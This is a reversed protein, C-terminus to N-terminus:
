EKNRIHLWFPEKNMFNELAAVAMKSRALAPAGELTTRELGLGICGEVDTKHGVSSDGFWNAPHILIGSRGPVDNVVYVRGFRRSDYRTTWYRGPPICSMSNANDKWPLEGSHLTMSLSGYVARLIGFTGFHSSAERVIEVSNM